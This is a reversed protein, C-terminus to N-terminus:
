FLCRLHRLFLCSLFFITLFLFYKSVSFIINGGQTFDLCFNALVSVDIGVLLFQRLLAKLCGGVGNKTCIDVSTLNAVCCGNSRLHSALDAFTSIDDVFEVNEAFGM